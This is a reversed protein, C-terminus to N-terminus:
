IHHEVLEEAIQVANLAAGKRLNDSVVWMNLTNKSHQRLRSVFVDDEGKCDIPTIYELVNESLMVGPFESLAEVADKLDIEEEFEVYVSAGHGVFVPVRVCTAEIYIQAELIKNIENMIKEEEISFGSKNINDICPIVNYAIQRPFTINELKKSFLLDRAQKDLERIGERGAGSVSQFTTVIVKQMKALDLLPKLAMAIQITTCNPNAIINKHVYDSVRNGNIEPVILPIQSDQRFCSSNDIVICGSQAAIKGYQDSIKSGASFLAIHTDSFDYDDLAAVKLDKDGFSVERGKSNESSLPVVELTPFNREHMIQLMSLGVSGTAGVVAVKYSM